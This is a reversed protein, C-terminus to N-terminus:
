IHDDGAAKADANQVLPDIVNRLERTTTTAWIALRGACQHAVDVAGAITSIRM